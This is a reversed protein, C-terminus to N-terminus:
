DLKTWQAPLNRNASHERLRKMLEPQIPLRGCLNVEGSYVIYISEEGVRFSTACNGQNVSQAKLINPQGKFSEYITIRAERNNILSVVKAHVVADAEALVKVVHKDNYGSAPLCDCAMSTPALGVILIGTIMQAHRTM